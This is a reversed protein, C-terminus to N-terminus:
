QVLQAIFYGIFGFQSDYTRVVGENTFTTTRIEYTKELVNSDKAFTNAIKQPLTKDFSLTVAVGKTAIFQKFAVTNVEANEASTRSNGRKETEGIIQEVVRKEGLLVLEGNQVLVIGDPTEWTKKDDSFRGDSSLSNQLLKVDRVKAIVFSEMGADDVAGTIIQPAVSELFMEPKEIGYPKLLWNSALMVAEPKIQDVNHAATLVITRYAIRADSLDYKTVYSFNQPLVRMMESFDGNGQKLNLQLVEAAERKLEFHVTDNVGSDTKKMTWTIRKILNKLLSPVIGSIIGRSNEDNSQRVATSVGVIDAANKIGKGFVVGYALSDSLSDTAAIIKEDGVTGNIIANPVIEIQKEDNGFVIVSGSITAFVKRGDEARWEYWDVNGRKTKIQKANKGYTRRVFPDLTR